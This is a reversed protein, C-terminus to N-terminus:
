PQTISGTPNSTTIINDKIYKPWELCFVTPTVVLNKGIVISGCGHSSADTIGVFNPWAPILNRCMTPKSVSEQLIILCDRVSQMLDQNQGLNIIRPKAALLAYFPSLLGNGSPITIFAHCVKSMTSQFENFPIGKNRLAWMLWGKLTSIIADRKDSALWLTKDIGSFTLGLIDKM